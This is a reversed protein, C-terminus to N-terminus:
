FFTNKKDIPIIGIDTNTITHNLKFFNEDTDYYIRYELNPSFYTPVGIKM